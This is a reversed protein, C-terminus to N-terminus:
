CLPLSQAAMSVDEPRCGVIDGYASYLSLDHNVGPYLRLRRKVDNPFSLYVRPRREPKAVGSLADKVATDVVFPDIDKVCVTTEYRCNWNCRVCTMPMVVASTLGSYPMFRGFHGGGLIIVNPTGVACAMHGLGSEAGIALRCRKLLAAATGLDTKGFLDIARAAIGRLAANFYTAEHSTGLGIITYDRDTLSALAESYHEYVRMGYQAGPMFIVTKEPVLLRNRFFNEVWQAQTHSSWVEPSCQFNPEGLEALLRRYKELESVWPDVGKVLYSYIKPALARHEPSLNIGDGEFGIIEPCQSFASVTDSVIDRSYASNIVLDAKWAPLEQALREFSESVGPNITFISDFIPCADYLSRVRETCVLAIQAAPWLARVARFFGSALINDGIADVRVLLIRKKESLSAHM